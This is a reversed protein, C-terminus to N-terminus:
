TKRMPISRYPSKMTQYDKYQGLPLSQILLLMLLEPPVREDDDPLIDSNDDNKVKKKGKTCLYFRLVQMSTREYLSGITANEVDALKFDLLSTDFKHVPRVM